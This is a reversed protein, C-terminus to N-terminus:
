SKIIRVREIMASRQFYSTIAIRSNLGDFFMSDIKPCTQASRRSICSAKRRETLRAWVEAREVVWRRFLTLQFLLQRHEAASTCYPIEQITKDRHRSSGEIRSLVLVDIFSFKFLPDMFDVIELQGVKGYGVLEKFDKAGGM